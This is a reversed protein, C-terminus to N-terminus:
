HWPPIESHGSDSPSIPTQDTESTTEPKTWLEENEKRQNRDAQAVAEVAVRVVDILGWGDPLRLYPARPRKPDAYIRRNGPYINILWGTAPVNWVSLQYQTPSCKRLFLGSQQALRQAEGFDRDAQQRRDIADRSRVQRLARFTEDFDSM